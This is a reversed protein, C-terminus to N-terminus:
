EPVEWRNSGVEVLDGDALLQKLAQDKLHRDKGQVANTVDRLRMVEGDKARRQAKRLIVRAM